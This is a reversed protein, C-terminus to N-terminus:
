PGRGPGSGGGGGPMAGGRSGGPRGSPTPAAGAEPGGAGAQGRAPLPATRSRSTAGVQPVAAARQAGGGARQGGGNGGGSASQSPNASVRLKAVRRGPLGSARAAAWGAWRLAVALRSIGKRGLRASHGSVRRRKTHPQTRGLATPGLPLGLFRRRHILSEM